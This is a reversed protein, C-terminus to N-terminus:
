RSSVGGQCGGILPVDKAMTEEIFRLEDILYPNNDANAETIMQPGGMIMVGAEDGTLQPLTEGRWPEVLQVDYGREILHQRGADTEVLQWHEVVYLPKLTSRKRGM